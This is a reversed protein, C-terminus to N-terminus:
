AVQALKFNFPGEQSKWSFHTKKAKKKQNKKNTKPKKTKTTKTPNKLQSPFFNQQFAWKVTNDTNTLLNKQEM